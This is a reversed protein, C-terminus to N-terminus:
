LARETLKRYKRGDTGNPVQLTAMAAAASQAQSIKEYQKHQKRQIASLAVAAGSNATEGIQSMSPINAYQGSNIQETYYDTYYKYYYEQETANKAYVSASYEALRPVDALTYQSSPKGDSHSKGNNQRANIQKNESDVCYTIIIERNDINLPPEISKLANHTNMSDVLNDFFLYCIGRSTSTLPDRCILIKSIKSVLTPILGQMATLVGEENTLVDLNRLM